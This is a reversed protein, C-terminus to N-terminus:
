EVTKGYWTRRTKEECFEIVVVGKTGPKTTTYLEDVRASVVSDLESNPSLTPFTVGCIQQSAPSITGLARLFL